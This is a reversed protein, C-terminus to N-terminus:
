IVRGNPIYNKNHDTMYSKQRRIFVASGMCKHPKASPLQQNEHFYSKESAQFPIFNLSSGKAHSYLLSFSKPFGCCFLKIEVFLLLM